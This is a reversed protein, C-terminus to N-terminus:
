ICLEDLLPDVNDGFDALKAEAVSRAAIARRALLFATVLFGIIEDKSWDAVPKSWDLGACAEPLKPLIVAIAGNFWPDPAVCSLTRITREEDWGEAAAQEARTSIWLWVIMSVISTWEDDGLRGIPSLPRIPGDDGVMEKAAAVCAAYAQKTWRDRPMHIAAIKSTRMAIIVATVAAVVGV